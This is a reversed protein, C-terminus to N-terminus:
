RRADSYQGAVFNKHARALKIADGKNQLEQTLQDEDVHNDVSKVYTTTPTSIFVRSALIQEVQTITEILKNITNPLVNAVPVRLTIDKPSHERLSRQLEGLMLQPAAWFTRNNKVDAHILIVPLRVEHCLYRANSIRIVQSIFDGSASYRTIESSKLQVKFFVGTSKFDVFIEIEFDIGNDKDLKRVAWGLPEFISKMQREGADDTIQQRPRKM